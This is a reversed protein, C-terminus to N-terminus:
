VVSYEILHAIVHRFFTCVKILFYKIALFAPWLSGENLQLRKAITVDFVMSQDCIVMVFIIM